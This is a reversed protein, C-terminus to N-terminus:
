ELLMGSTFKRGWFSSVDDDKALKQKCFLELIYQQTIFSEQKDSISDKSSKLGDNKQVEVVENM